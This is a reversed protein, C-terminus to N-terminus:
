ACVVPPPDWRPIATQTRAVRGLMDAQSAAHAGAVPVFLGGQLKGEKHSLTQITAELKQEGKADGGSGLKARM